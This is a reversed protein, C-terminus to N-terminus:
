YARINKPVEENRYAAFFVALSQAIVSEETPSAMIHKVILKAMAYPEKSRGLLFLKALGETALSRLDLDEDHLLNCLIMVVDETTMSAESTTNAGGNKSENLISDHVLMIDLLATM